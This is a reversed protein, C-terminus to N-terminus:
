VHTVNVRSTDFVAIENPAVSINNSTTPSPSLGILLVVDDIGPISAISALLYPITIVDKGIGLSNGFDVIAQRVAADGNSPYVLPDITLQAEVYIDLAVPRSFQVTHPQGQSDTISVSITGFSRIGAPKVQWILNAIATQDGGEVTAEFSHPPLNNTDTIDTINEFMVVSTVGSLALLRSRIAEFTGAGAVQLTTARRARYANDIEANRGVVADVINLVADLGSVPTNIVTLTGANAVLPGNTIATVNVSAQDIGEQTIATTVDVVVSSSELTNFPVQFQPQSMLGGTGAGSFGITFGVSYDGTVNCGDAFLLARVATQVAAADANYALLATTLGNLSLKWQGSDPVASFNVTQICDQGVGLTADGDLQFVNGPSGDVSFQTATTPLAAGPVVTGATGFLKVGLITSPLAGLRPIGSISGVNDLSAGFATNPYQSNYVDQMAAWILYERESFTGIIQGIPADPSLDVNAGFTSKITDEIQKKIDTLQPIVFGTSTIGFAM